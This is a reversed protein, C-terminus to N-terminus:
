ALIELCNELETRSQSAKVMSQLKYVSILGEGGLKSKTM